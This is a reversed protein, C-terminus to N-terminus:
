VEHWTSGMWWSTTWSSRQVKLHETHQKTRMNKQVDNPACCIKQLVSWQKLWDRRSNSEEVTHPGVSLREIGIGPGLEANFDGGVIQMSKQSKTIKQISYYAREVHHDAYGSHHFHVSMDTTRQKNVTISTAIAREKIYETRVIKRWKKNLLIAVGHKDEVRGAGMYVQWPHSKWIEAKNPKWTESLLLADGRSDQVERILEEIKDNSNLSRTNKQLVVFTVDKEDDTKRPSNKEPAAAAQTRSKTRVKRKKEQEKKATEEKM